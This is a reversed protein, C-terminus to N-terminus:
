QVWSETKVETYTYGPGYGSRYYAKAQYWEDAVLDTYNTEFEHYFMGPMMGGIPTSTVSMTEYDGASTYGYYYPPSFQFVYLRSFVPLPTASGM